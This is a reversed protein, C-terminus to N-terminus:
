KKEAPQSGTEIKELLGAKQYVYYLRTVRHRVAKAVADAVEYQKKKERMPEFVACSAIASMGQLIDILAIRPLEQIAKDYAVQTKSM